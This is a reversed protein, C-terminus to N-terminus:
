RPTSEPTHPPDTQPTSPAASATLRGPFPSERQLNESSMNDMLRFWEEWAPMDIYLPLGFAAAVEFLTAVSMKGYDPNELRSIVQQPKGMRRGLEAQSWGRQRRLARIQLALRVNCHDAAFSNRFEANNFEDPLTKV